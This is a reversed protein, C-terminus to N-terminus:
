QAGGTQQRPTTAAFAANFAASLRAQTANVMQQLGALMTDAHAESWQVEKYQAAWTEIMMALLINSQNKALELETLAAFTGPDRGTAAQKRRHEKLLILLLKRCADAVISAVTCNPTAAADRQLLEFEAETIPILFVPEHYKRHFICLCLPQITKSRPLRFSYHTDVTCHGSHLFYERIAAAALDYSNEGKDLLITQLLDFEEETLPIKEVPQQTARNYIVLCCDPAAGGPFAFTKGYPSQVTPAPVFPSHRSNL